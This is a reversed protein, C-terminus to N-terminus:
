NGGPTTRAPNRCRPIFVCEPATPPPPWGAACASLLSALVLAAIVFGVTTRMPPEDGVGAEDISEEGSMRSVISPTRRGTSVSPCWRYGLPARGETRQPAPRYPTLAWAAGRETLRMQVGHFVQMLRCGWFYLGYAPGVVQRRQSWANQLQSRRCFRRQGPQRSAMSASGDSSGNGRRGVGRRRDRFRSSAHLRSRARRRRFVGNPGLRQLCRAPTLISDQGGTAGVTVKWPHTAM